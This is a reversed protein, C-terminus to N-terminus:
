DDDRPEDIIGKRIFEVSKMASAIEMAAMTIALGIWFGAWGNM